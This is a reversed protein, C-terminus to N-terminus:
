AFNHHFHVEALSVFCPGWVSDRATRQMQTLRVRSQKDDKTTLILINMDGDYDYFDSLM